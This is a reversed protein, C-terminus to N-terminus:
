DFRAFWKRISSIWLNRAPYQNKRHNKKIQRIEKRMAFGKICNEELKKSQRTQCPALFKQHTFLLHEYYHHNHKMFMRDCFECKEKEGKYFERIRNSQEASRKLTWKKGAM